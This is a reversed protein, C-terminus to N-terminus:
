AGGCDADAEQAEFGRTASVLYVPRRKTEDYIKAIYEGVIGLSIMILSGLFLLTIELTAFGSVATGRAWSWLTDATVIAGFALTLLGFSTVIQLPASTFSVLATTALGFLARLSWKGRGTERPAVDFSVSAQDFGVWDALGRYFRSREPLDAVLADVAVRDLLKFDSSNRVDIGGLRTLLGHFVASRWRAPLSDHSRDRKVAHVVKAGVRWRDLLEPILSPPHQLDADITVVADGRAAKLGALLAAEKGFNRSLRVGRLHRDADALACLVAFTGDRSGDDVVILEYDVGCSRLVTGIEALTHALGPAEDHAPIVVSVLASRSAAGPTPAGHDPTTM